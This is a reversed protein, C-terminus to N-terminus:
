RSEGEQLTFVMLTSGRNPIPIEPTLAHAARNGILSFGAPIAVYQKGGALYTMPYGAPQSNLRLEWLVKGTAADLAFARRNTDGGFVIGGATALLSSSWYPRQQHTWSPQETELNIADVRGVFGDSGPAHRYELRGRGYDEGVLPQQGVIKWDMCMNNLPIFLTKTAPNYASAMWLKGGYDSPCVFQADDFKKPILAENITVKGTEPDISKFVNQYITERAWLFEGTGRDLAWLIGPKGIAILAHRPKNRVDIDVLVQEFTHDLNWNDNPLFQRYWIIKGTDVDLALTSDSFLVAGDGTGRVIAAHPNPGGTGFYVLNLSPDYSGATWSSGGNRNEVPLGNWSQDGPSGPQAITHTRWLEKGTNAEVAVIFCGGSTSPNTCGSIGAIVKGKAVIPGGTFTYGQAYDAVKTDWEVKGTRASLAVVHADATTLFVKDDYLAITGRSRDFLDNHYGGEVKPLQRQYEWLLDGTRGDLAQVVNHPNGLFLVGDHVLPAEEQYGPSMNWAWALKLHSVNGTDIQDLASYGWSSYNGRRMLWDKPAPAQLVENTIPTLGQLVNEGATTASGKALMLLMGLMPVITFFRGAVPGIPPM